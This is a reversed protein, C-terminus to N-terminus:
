KNKVALFKDIREQVAKDSFVKEDNFDTAFEDLLPLPKDKINRICNDCLTGKVNGELHKRRFEVITENHWAEAISEKNLDGYVLYNQFDTCCATMYGECTVNIHSFLQSCPTSVKYEFVDKNLSPRLLRDNEPTWGGQNIVNLVCVEDCWDSFNEIVTQQNYETYKTMIYSVFIKFNKGSEKRYLYIEKLNNMVVDYYDKGHILYYEDKNIANISFKISDLGSAILQEVNDKTALVGNTTMYIYEFGIEKALEVYKYMDKCLLPEGTLYFGVERVGENYADRLIKNLLELSMFGRKRTMKRNACFICELNCANTVEILFNKKPIPPYLIKNVHSDNNEIRNKLFEKSMKM